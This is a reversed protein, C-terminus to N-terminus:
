GTNLACKGRAHQCTVASLTKRDVVGNYRVKRSHRHALPSTAAIARALGKMVENARNATTNGTMQASADAYKENLMDIGPATLLDGIQLLSSHHAQKTAPHCDGCSANTNDLSPL